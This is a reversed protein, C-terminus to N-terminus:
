GIQELFGENDAGKWQIFNVNVIKRKREEIVVKRCCRQYEAKDVDSGTDEFSNRTIVLAAKWFVLKNFPDAMEKRENLLM